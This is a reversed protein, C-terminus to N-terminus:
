FTRTYNLPLIGAKWAPQTPEIGMVREMQKKHALLEAPYLLQRRLLLDPTRSGRPMGCNKQAKHHIYSLQNSRWITARSTTPEVGIIWGMKYQSTALRYPLPSQSRWESPEFGDMGALILNLYTKLLFFTSPKKIKQFFIKQLQIKSNLKKLNPLNYHPVSYIKNILATHVAQACLSYFYFRNRFVM